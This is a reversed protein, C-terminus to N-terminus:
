LSGDRTRKRRRHESFHVRVSSHHWATIGGGPGGGGGGGLEGGGGCGGACGLGGLGGCAVFSTADNTETSKQTDPNISHVSSSLSISISPMCDMSSTPVPVRVKLTSRMKLVSHM